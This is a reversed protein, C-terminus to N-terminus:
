ADARAAAHGLVRRVREVVERQEAEDPERLPPLVHPACVGLAHMAVKLMAISQAISRGSGYTDGIQKILDQCRHAEEMDSGVAADYLSRCVGPIVNGVGPVFGDAGLEMARAAYVSPGTFFAFDDRGKMIAILHELREPDYESDKVGVINPHRSLAELVDTPISHGTTMPINYLFLPAPVRDALAEFYAQMEAGDIPYYYPVHAVLVDAGARHYADAVEIAEAFSTSSINAYLTVRGAAHTTASEAFRLRGAPTISAYEGTTGLLLVGHVGGNILHDLVAPVAAEDLEGSKTFPTVAPVVVGHHTPQTM